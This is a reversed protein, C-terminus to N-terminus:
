SQPHREGPKVVLVWANVDDPLSHITARGGLAEFIARIRHPRLFHSQMLALKEALAVLKVSIHALDPEEVVLRGGPALVRMLEAATRKQDAVHHLADVMLIRDFAGDPFPLQEAVANAPQLGNKTTAQRLMGASVDVLVLQRVHEALAGAVRGTGGGVDLLRGDPSLDLLDLIPALNAPSIVQDYIPAVLDFHDLGTLTLIRQRLSM